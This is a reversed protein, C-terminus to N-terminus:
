RVQVVTREVSGDEAVTERAVTLAGERESAAQPRLRGGGGSLYGAMKLLKESAARRVAVDPSELDEHLQLIARHVMDDLFERQIEDRAEKAYKRVWEVAERFAPKVHIFGQTLHGLKGEPWRPHWEGNHWNGFSGWADEDNASFARRMIFEKEVSNLRYWNPCELSVDRQVRERAAPLQEVPVPLEDKKVARMM